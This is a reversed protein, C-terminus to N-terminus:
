MKCIPGFLRQAWDLPTCCHLLATTYNTHFLTDPKAYYFPLPVMTKNNHYKSMQTHISHLNHAVKSTQIEGVALPVININYM